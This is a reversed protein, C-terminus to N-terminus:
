ESSNTCHLNKDDASRPKDTSMQDVPKDGISNIRASGDMAIPRSQRGPDINGLVNIEFAGKIPRGRERSTIGNRMQPRPHM